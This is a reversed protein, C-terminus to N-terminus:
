RQCSFNAAGETDGSGNYQAHEPYACLPRNRGPFAKGAAVIVDPAIGKEVWDMVAGLMDFRDLSPGGGRAIRIQKGL